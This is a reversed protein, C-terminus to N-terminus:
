LKLRLLPAHQQAGYVDGDGPDGACVARPMSFKIALIEPLEFRKIQSVQLGYLFAVSAVKLTDSLAAREYSHTDRFFVDITFCLPGANKSRIVSALESLPLESVAMADVPQSVAM